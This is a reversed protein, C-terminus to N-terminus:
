LAHGEGSEAGRQDRRHGRAHGPRTGPRGRLRRDEAGLEALGGRGPRAVRRQPRRRSGADGLRGRAQLAQGARGGTRCPGGLGGRSRRRLRLASLDDRNGSRNRDAHCGADGRAAARRWRPGRGGGRRDRCRPQGRRGGRPQRGRRCRGRGRRRCRAERRRRCRGGRCRRCRGRGRRRRRAEGRRGCRGGSCGRCGAQGRRRCRRRGGRRCRGRGRHRWPSRRSSQDESRTRRVPSGPRARTAGCARRRIGRPTVGM